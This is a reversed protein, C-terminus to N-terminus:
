ALICRNKLVSILENFKGVLMELTTDAPLTEVVQPEGVLGIGPEGDKGPEGQPGPVKVAKLAEEIEDEIKNLDEARIKEKKVWKHRKYVM